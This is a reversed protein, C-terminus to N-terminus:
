EFKQLEGAKFKEVVDRVTKCEGFEYMPLNAAKLVGAAKPGFHGSVVAEVNLSAVFQGSKIGAGGTANVAENQHTVCELTETDVVSFNAGRGCHPDLNADIGSSSATVLIKM